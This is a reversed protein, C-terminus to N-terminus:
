RLNIINSTIYRYTETYNYCEDKTEFNRSAYMALYYLAILKENKTACKDKNREQEVVCITEETMSCRFQNLLSPTPNIDNLLMFYSMKAVLCAADVNEGCNKCNSFLDEISELISIELLGFSKFEKIITEEVGERLIKLKYRGPALRSFGVETFHVQGQQGYGLAKELNGREILTEAGCSNDLTLVYTLGRNLSFNKLSFVGLSIEKFTYYLTQIDTDM